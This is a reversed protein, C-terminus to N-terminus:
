LLITKTNNCNQNKSPQHQLRIESEATNNTSIIINTNICFSNHFPKSLKDTVITTKSLQFVTQQKPM